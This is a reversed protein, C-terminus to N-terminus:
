SGGTMSARRGASSPTSLGLGVARGGKEFREEITASIYPALEDSVHIHPELVHVRSGGGAEDRTVVEEGRHGLYYGDRPLRGGGLYAGLYDALVPQQARHVAAERELEENRQKLAENLQSTVENEAAGPETESGAIAEAVKIGLEKLVSQADWIAGGYQGAQPTGPLPKVPSHQKPWHTGQITVLSDELSGTGAAGANPPEVPNKRGPYFAERAEGLVKRLERDRFRLMPLRAQEAHLKKLADPHKHWWKSSHKKAADNIVDIEQGIKRVEGEWGTELNAAVDEGKLSLNRWDALHGLVAEYAPREQDEVYKTFNAVYSKEASERETESAKAPLIPPQPETSVTQEAFQNSEEYAREAAEMDAEVGTIRGLRHSLKKKVKRQAKQRRLKTRATRLDTLHGEIATVNAEIAQQTKPKGSAARAAKRYKGVETQWKGIEREVAPLNKPVSPFSLSATHAGHFIGPVKEEAATASGSGKGAWGDTWTQGEAKWQEYLGPYASGEVEQAIKGPDKYKKSLGIGGGHYYGPDFWHLAQTYANDSPSVGEFTSTLQFTNGTAGLDSEQTAAMMSAVRALHNAGKTDGAKQIEGATHTQQPSAATGKVTYNGPAFGGSAFRPVVGGRNFGWGVFHPSRPNFADQGYKAIATRVGRPADKPAGARAGGVVGGRAFGPMHRFQFSGDWGSTEHAGGGSGGSEFYKWGGGPAKVSMMTHASAGSTGRVGWTFFRGRGPAGLTYLGSGQQVSLPADLFGGAHLIASVYGSCDYPGNFSGHGGGFVYPYGKAAQAEAFRLMHMIREPEMHKALFANVGRVDRSLAGQGVDALSRPGSVRVSGGAAMAQWHPTRERQFLEPLNRYPVVGHAHAFNLAANIPRQQHQTAVAEGPAALIPVSDRTGVGGLFGSAAGHHKAEAAAEGKLQPSRSPGLVMAQFTVMDKAGVARLMANANTGINELAGGVGVAAERYADAIPGTAGKKVGERLQKNTAGFKRVQYATLSDVQHELKPHGQAWAQLMNQTADISKERAAKPMAALTKTWQNVGQSTVQNAQKFSKATSQALGFPDDGRVVHIERLLRNIEDHGRKANITGNSIGQKIAIVAEHMALATHGRWQKTGHLWERNAQGLGRNLSSNVGGIGSSASVKLDIMTNDFKKRLRDLQGETLHFNQGRAGQLADVETRAVGKTNFGHTLSSKIGQGETPDGVGFAKLGHVGLEAVLYGGAVALVGRALKQAAGKAAAKLGGGAAAGGGAAIGLEEYIPTGGPGLLKSGAAGVGAGEAGAVLAGGAGAAAGAAASETEVIGMWTAMTKAAKAAGGFVKLINGGITLVPGLAIAVLGLKVIWSKTSDPLQDFAHFVKVVDGGIERLLPAVEPLLENGIKVLSARLSSWAKDLKVSEEANTEKLKDNFTGANEGIEKFKKNLDDTKGLLQIITGGSKAGGFAASLLQSQEIKTLGTMHEQLLELASVLGDPQRFKKALSESNLGIEKLVGVAKTTPNALLSFTMSLRTAAATAPVSQSTLEGFAAGADRMTLGVSKARALFGTGIAGNLDEMKVNSVGITANLLGIAERMNGSGKIGTQMTGVLANTTAELDAGGVTALDSAAKLTELAKAGSIGVSRIHFLAESLEQPGQAFRGKESLTLIEHSLKHVERATGGAQTSVKLMSSNFDLAMKGAVVGLAALPLGIKHTITHGTKAVRSGAADIKTVMSDFGTAAKASAASTAAGMERTAGTVKGAGAEVQGVGTMRVNIVFQEAGM